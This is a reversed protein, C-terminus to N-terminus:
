PAWTRLKVLLSRREVRRLSWWWCKVLSKDEVLADTPNADDVYLVVNAVGGHYFAVEVVLGTEMEIQFDVGGGLATTLTAVLMVRSWDPAKSDKDSSLVLVTM